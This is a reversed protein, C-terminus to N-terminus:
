GRRTYRVFGRRASECTSPEEVFAVGVQQRLCIVEVAATVVRRVAIFGACEPDRMAPLDVNVEQTDEIGDAREADGDGSKAAERKAAILKM